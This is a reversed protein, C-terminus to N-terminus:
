AVMILKKFHLTATLSTFRKTKPGCTKAYKFEPSLWTNTVMSHVMTQFCHSFSNGIPNGPKFFPNSDDFQWVLPLSLKQFVFFNFSLVRFLFAVWFPGTGAGASTGHTVASAM